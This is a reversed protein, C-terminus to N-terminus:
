TGEMALRFTTGLYWEHDEGEDIRMQLRCVNWTEETSMVRPDFCVHKLIRYPRCAVENEEEHFFLVAGLRRNQFFAVAGDAVVRKRMALNHEVCLRMGDRLSMPSTLLAATMMVEMMMWM